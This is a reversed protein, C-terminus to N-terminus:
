PGFIEILVRAVFGIVKFTLPRVYWPPQAQQKDRTKRM